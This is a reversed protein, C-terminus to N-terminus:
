ASIIVRKKKREGSIGKEEWGTKNAKIKKHSQIYIQLKEQESFYFYIWAQCM